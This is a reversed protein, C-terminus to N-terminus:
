EGGRDLIAAKLGDFYRKRWDIEGGRSATLTNGVADRLRRMDGAYFVYDLDKFWKVSEALKHDVTGLVVCPTETMVSFIVGHFRDTVVLEYGLFLRIAKELEDRREERKINKKLTTDYQDCDRGFGSVCKYIDKRDCEALLSEPDGRLCLLVNKRPVGKNGGVAGALYLVFDPVCMTRCAPFYEKALEFSRSDRAMVTLDGHGNYIERTVALERRGKDTNSFFITQPLSVIKNKPFAKIIARRANESWMGRDGLNGGSHLFILDEESALLKIAPLYLGVEDKDFEMVRYGGFHDAFWEKIAVAQAHDGVNRLHSAPTILYLIKKERRCGVHRLFFISRLVPLICTMVMKVPLRDRNKRLFNM